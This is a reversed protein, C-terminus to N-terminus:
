EGGIPRAGPMNASVAEVAHAPARPPQRVIRVPTPQQPPGMVTPHMPPTPMPQQVVGAQQLQQQMQPPAFVSLLKMATDPHKMLAGAIGYGIQELMGAGSPAQITPGEPRTLEDDLRRELRRIEDDRHELERRHANELTRRREAAELEARQASVDAMLKAIQNALQPDVTPSAVRNPDGLGALRVISEVQQSARQDAMGILQMAFSLTGAMDTTPASGISPPAHQAAAPQEEVPNFTVVRGSGVRVRGGRDTTGDWITKFTGSGWRERVNAETLEELPWEHLVVGESSPHSLRQWAGSQTRRSIGWHTALHPWQGFVSMPMTPNAAARYVYTKTPKEEEEVPENAVSEGMEEAVAMSPM